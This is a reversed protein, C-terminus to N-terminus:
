RDAIRVGAIQTAQAVLRGKSDWALATEDLREGGLDNAHMRVRIPGPAPLRRLYASLQITPAWGPHGLDFSVPPLTDLAVLLSWPDWDSGDDLRMWASLEGRMTPSGVAFGLQAPNVRLEVVEMLPLHMGGPPDVPSRFCESEDPLEVPEAGSWVPDQDDLLGQTILAEVVPRGDQTLSARLQTVGRGARLVEARVEAPGFAPPSLFSGSIATVHPHERPALQGAARALLALLYGGHPKGGISWQPDVTVDFRGDGIPRVATAKAFSAM